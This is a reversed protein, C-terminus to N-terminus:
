VKRNAENKLMKGRGLLLWEASVSYQSCLAYLAEQEVFKYRSPKSTPNPTVGFTLRLERYRGSSLGQENCFSELSSVWGFGIIAELAIFFRRNIGEQIQTIPKAKM